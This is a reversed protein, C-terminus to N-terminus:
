GHFNRIKVRQLQFKESNKEFPKQFRGYGNQTLTNPLHGIHLTCSLLLQSPRENAFTVNLRMLNNSARQCKNQAVKLFICIYLCKALVDENQIIDHKSNKYIREHVRHGM